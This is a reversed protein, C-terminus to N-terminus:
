WPAAQGRCVAKLWSLTRHSWGEGLHTMGNATYVRAFDSFADMRAAPQLWAQGTRVAHQRLEHWRLLCVYWLPLRVLAIRSSFAKDGAVAAAAAQMHRLGELVVDPALFPADPQANLDLYCGAAAQPYGRKALCERIAQSGAYYDVGMAAAHIVYKAALQGASTAVAEGVPIPGKAIAEKEIEAGGRRKIAGAVGAGMWLHNNAANVIAETECDCIDGQIISITSHNIKAQM